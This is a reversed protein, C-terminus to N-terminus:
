FYKITTKEIITNNIIDLVGPSVSEVRTAIDPNVSDSTKICFPEILVGGNNIAKAMKSEDCFFEFYVKDNCEWLRYYSTQTNDSIELKGESVKMYKYEANSPRNTTIKSQSVAVDKKIIKRKGYKEQKEEKPSKKKSDHLIIHNSDKIDTSSSKQESSINSKPKSRLEWNIRNEFSRFQDISVFDRSDYNTRIKKNYVFISLITVLLSVVFSIGVHIIIEIM